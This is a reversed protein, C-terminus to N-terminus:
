LLSIWTFLRHLLGAPPRLLGVLNYRPQRVYPREHSFTRFGEQGHYAGMGSGGIGGFPLEELGVHVLAEGIGVAGSSTRAALQEARKRAHDYIYLALPRPGAQVQALVADLDDYAVVPLVPGFIEEQMLRCGSPPNVVLVLPIVRSPADLPEDGLPIVTAGGDRAEDILRLLRKHHHDSIIATVDPNADLRPYQKRWASRMAAVFADVQARPVFAHDPAVCTQGSNFCKAWTIRAAATAIPFSPHVIAPSKGGLELTLPTLQPAAAQMIRRGVATSGTFLLHDLPLGALRAGVEAGGDVVQVVDPPFVETLLARLAAATAPTLESPKVLVRNGAAIAPVLPGLALQVPYNWPAIIAVVGRPEPRVWASLPRLQWSVEVERPAAWDRLQARANDIAAIVIALEGVETELRSRAGYDSAVARVLEERRAKVAKRLAKLLKLREPIPLGGERAWAARLRGHAALLAAVDPSEADGAPGLTGSPATALTM